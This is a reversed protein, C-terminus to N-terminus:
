TWLPSARSALTEALQRYSLRQWRMPRGRTTCSLSWRTAFPVRSSLFGGQITRKRCPSCVMIGATSSLGTARQTPGHHWCYSLYSLISCTCRSLFVIHVTTLVLFSPIFPLLRRAIVTTAWQWRRQSGGACFQGGASVIREGCCCFDCTLPTGFFCSCVQVPQSGPGDCILRAPVPESLATDLPKKVGCSTCCAEHLVDSPDFALGWKTLQQVPALLPRTEAEDSGV